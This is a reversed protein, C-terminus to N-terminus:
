ERTEKLTLTGLGIDERRLSVYEDGGSSLLAITDVAKAADISDVDWDGKFSGGARQAYPHNIAGCKAIAAAEGGRWFFYCM